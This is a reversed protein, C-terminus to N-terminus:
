GPRPPHVSLMFRDNNQDDRGPVIGKLSASFTRGLSPVFFKVDYATCDEIM